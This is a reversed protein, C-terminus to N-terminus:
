SHQMAGFQSSRQDLMVSNASAKIRLAIAKEIVARTELPLGVLPIPDMEM